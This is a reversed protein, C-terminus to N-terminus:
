DIRGMLEQFDTVYYTSRNRVEQRVINGGYGPLSHFNGNLYDVILKKMKESRVLSILQQPLLRWIRREM